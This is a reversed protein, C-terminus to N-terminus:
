ATRRYAYINQYQPLSSFSTATDSYWEQVGYNSGKAVELKGVTSNTKWGKQIPTSNSTTGTYGSLFSIWPLNEVTLTITDSGGTGNAAKARLVGTTISSWSGGFLNAPTIASYSLYIAGVPYIIDLLNSWSSGNKYKFVAM